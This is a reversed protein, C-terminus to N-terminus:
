QLQPVLYRLASGLDIRGSRSLDDQSVSQMPWVTQPLGTNPDVPQAIRSGTVYVRQSSPTDAAAPNVARAGPSATSACAALACSVLLAAISRHYIAMRAEHFSLVPSNYPPHACCHIPQGSLM